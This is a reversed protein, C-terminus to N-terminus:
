WNEKLGNQQTQMHYKKLLNLRGTIKQDYFSLPIARREVIMYSYQHYVCRCEHHSLVLEMTSAYTIWKIDAACLDASNEHHAFGMIELVQKPAHVSTLIHHKGM